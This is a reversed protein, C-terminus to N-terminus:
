GQGYDLNYPEEAWRNRRLLLSVKGMSVALALMLEEAGLYTGNIGVIHDNRGVNEDPHEKNWKDILGGHKIHRVRLVDLRQHVQTLVGLTASQSKDVTVVFEHWPESVADLDLDASDDQIAPHFHLTDFRAEDADPWSKACCPLM